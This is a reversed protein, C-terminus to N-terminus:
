EVWEVHGDVDVGMFEEDNEKTYFSYGCFDLDMLTYAEWTNTNIFLWNEAEEDIYIFIFPELSRQFHFVEGKKVERRNWDKIM